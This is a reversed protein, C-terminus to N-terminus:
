MIENEINNVSAFIRNRLERYLCSKNFVDENTWKLVVIGKDLAIVRDAIEMMKPKHTVMIITYNRKLNFTKFTNDDMM